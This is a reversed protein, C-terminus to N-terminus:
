CNLLQFRNRGYAIAPFVRLDAIKNGSFIQRL